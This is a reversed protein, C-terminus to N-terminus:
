HATFYLSREVGDTKLYSSREVEDSHKQCDSLVTRSKVLVAYECNILLTKNKQLVKTYVTSLHYFLVKNTIKNMQNKPIKM